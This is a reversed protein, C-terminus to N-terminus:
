KQHLKRWHRYEVRARAITAPLDHALLIVIIIALLWDTM